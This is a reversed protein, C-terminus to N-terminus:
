TKIIGNLVVACLFSDAGAGFRLSDICQFDITFSYSPLWCSFSKKFLEKIGRTEFVWGVSFSANAKSTEECVWKDALAVWTQIQIFTPMWLFMLHFIKSPITFVIIVFIIEKEPPPSDDYVYIIYQYYTCKYNKM